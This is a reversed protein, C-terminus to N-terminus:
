AGAGPRVPPRLAAWGMLRGGALVRVVGLM